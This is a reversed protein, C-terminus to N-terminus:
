SFFNSGFTCLYYKLVILNMTFIYLCSFWFFHGSCQFYMEDDDDDHRVAQVSIGSGREGSRGIM